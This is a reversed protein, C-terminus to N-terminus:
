GQSALLGRTELAARLDELRTLTAADCGAMRLGREAADFLCCLAAEDDDQLVFYRAESLSERALVGEAACFGQAGDKTHNSMLYAHALPV